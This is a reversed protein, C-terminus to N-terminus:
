SEVVRHFIMPILWASYNWCPSLRLKNNNVTQNDPFHNVPPLPNKQAPIPCIHSFEFNPKRKEFQHIHLHQPSRSVKVKNSWNRFAHLSRPIDYEETWVRKKNCFRKTHTYIERGQLNMQIMAGIINGFCHNKGVPKEMSHFEVDTYKRKWARHTGRVTLSVVNKTDCLWNHQLKYYCLVLVELHSGVSSSHLVSQNIDCLYICCTISCHRLKSQICHPPSILFALHKIQWTVTM